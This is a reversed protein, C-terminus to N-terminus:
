KAKCCDTSLPLGCCTGDSEVTCSTSDACFEGNGAYQYAALSTAAAGAILLGIFLMKKM